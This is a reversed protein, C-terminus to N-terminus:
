HGGRRRIGTGVKGLVVPGDYIPALKKKAMTRNPEGRYLDKRKADIRAQEKRAEEAELEARRAKKRELEDAADTLKNDLAAAKEATTETKEHLDNALKAMDEASLAASDPVKLHLGQNVVEPFMNVGTKDAYEQLASECESDLKQNQQEIEDAM